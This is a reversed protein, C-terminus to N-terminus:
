TLCYRLFFLIEISSQNIEIDLEQLFKQEVCCGVFYLTYAIWSFFLDKCFMDDLSHLIVFKKNNNTECVYM